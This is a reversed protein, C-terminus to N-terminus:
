QIDWAAVPMVYSRNGNGKGNTEPPIFTILLDAGLSQNTAIIKCGKRTASYALRHMATAVVISKIEVDSADGDM